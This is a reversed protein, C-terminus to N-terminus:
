VREHILKIPIPAVHPLPSSSEMQQSPIAGDKPPSLASNKIDLRSLRPFAVAYLLSTRPVLWLLLLLIIFQGQWM